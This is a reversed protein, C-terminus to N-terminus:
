KRGTSNKNINALLYIILQAAFNILFLKILYVMTLPRTLEVETSEAASARTTSDPLSEPLKDFSVRGLLVIKFLFFISYSSETWPPPM